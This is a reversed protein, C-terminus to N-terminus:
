GRSAELAVLAAAFAKSRNAWRPPVAENLRAALQEALAREAPRAGFVRRVDAHTIWGIPVSAAEAALMLAGELRGRGRSSAAPPPNQSTGAELIAIVDPQYRRILATASEHFEALARQTSAVGTPMEIRDVGANVFQGAADIAAVWALSPDLHIGLAHINHM